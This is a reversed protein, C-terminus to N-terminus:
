AAGDGKLRPRTTTTDISYQECAFSSVLRDSKSPAGTPPPPAASRRAGEVETYEAPVIRSQDSRARHPELRQCDVRTMADIGRGARHRRRDVEGGCELARRVAAEWV